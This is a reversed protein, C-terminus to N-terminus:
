AEGDQPGQTRADQAARPQAHAPACVPSDWRAVTESVGVRGAGVSAVPNSPRSPAPPRSVPAGTRAMRIRGRLRDRSADPNGSRLCHACGGAADRRAGQAMGDLRAAPRRPGAPLQADRLLRRHAAARRVRPRECPPIYKESSM